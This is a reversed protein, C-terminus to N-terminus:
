VNNPTKTKQRPIGLIKDRYKCLLGTSLGWLILTNLWRGDWVRRISIVHIFSTNEAESTAIYRFCNKGGVVIKTRELAWIGLEKEVSNIHDLEGYFLHRSDNRNFQMFKSLSAGFTPDAMKWSGDSYYEVWAHAENPNHPFSIEKARLIPDPYILGIVVQAPIDSARCLATMLMAYGSCVCSRTKYAKLASADSLVKDKDEQSYTLYDATFSYIRYANKEFIGSSILSAQDQICDCDAEIGAQPLRQFSEVPAVWTAYGQLLQVDYEIVAELDDQSNKEGSFKITDVFSYNEKQQSGGWIIEVNGVSQYPGSKPLMIGLRIDANEGTGSFIYSETVHYHVKAPFWFFAGLVVFTILGLCLLVKLGCLLPQYISNQATKM